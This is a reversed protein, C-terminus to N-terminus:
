TWISGRIHGLFGQPAPCPVMYDSHANTHLRIEDGDALTLLVAVHPKFTDLWPQHSMSVNSLDAYGADDRDPDIPAGVAALLGDVLPAAIAVGDSEQHFEASAGEITYTMPPNIDDSGASISIRSVKERSLQPPIPERQMM